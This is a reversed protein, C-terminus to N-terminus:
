DALVPAHWSRWRLEPTLVLAQNTDPDIAILHIWSNSVLQAVEPSDAIVAAIDDPRAYLFVSLRLPEHQRQPLQGRQPEAAFLAQWPLGTRLDGYAGTIVGVDGIVNHTSKDGAGYCDTEVSSFYYQSNIWQAVVVPANLITHLVQRSPDQEPQYSHLFVRGQLDIGETLWRPGAVFAANGALGWEPTAEAWDHARAAVHKVAGVATRVRAGPLHECREQATKAAALLADRQLLGLLDPEIQVTACELTVEDTTTNHLGAIAQTSEPIVIGREALVSRVEVDNLADALLRANLLGGNGGCAGCDYGAAFANNTVTSAHGIIALIPAFGSTLGIARLASEAVAVRQGLAMGVPLAAAQDFENTDAQLQVVPIHAPNAQPNFLETLTGLQRPMVTAAMGVLGTVLGGGEAVAFGTMPAKAASSCARFTFTAAPLGSTARVECAPNLLVPFQDFRQGTAAQYSVAAGFFGAFGFTQYAGTAELNRRLRESRVDICFVLQALPAASAEDPGNASQQVLKDVLEDQFGVELARQWLQLEAELQPPSGAAAALRTLDTLTLAVSTDLAARFALLELLADTDGARVRWSGHGAWGPAFTLLRQLYRMPEIGAPLAALLAALAAEPEHGLQSALVDSTPLGSRRGWHQQSCAAHWRRYPGVNEADDALTQAAGWVYATWLGTHAALIDLPTCRDALGDQSQDSALETLLVSTSQPIQGNEASTSMRGLLQQAKVLDQESIRGIDRLHRYEAESLYSRASWTQALQAATHFDFAELNALPNAAVFQRLPFAPATLNAAIATLVQADARDATPTQALRRLYPENKRAAVGPLKRTAPPLSSALFALAMRGDPRRRMQRDAVFTLLALVVLLGIWGVAVLNPWVVAPPLAEAFAREWLSVLLLYGALAAVALMVAVIAQRMQGERLALASYVAVATAAAAIAYPILAVLGFGAVSHAILGLGAFLVVAPLGVAANASRLKLLGPTHIGVPQSRRRTVEGGARLFLWAKYFGHAMLHLLALAPLGLGLQLTMYGMQATTSSALRGKVDVRAQQALTGVVASVAGIVILAALALPAARFIPWTLAVLVGAGNVIGAHLYASVPSPAEATQPLWGWAPILASRVVCGVVLLLAVLTIEATSVQSVADALESRDLSPLLVIAAVVGLWVLADGVLLRRRVSAAAREARLTGRHALLATMLMGSLTWGLAMVPVSSGAVLLTLSVFSATLLGGFRALRAQGRLNRASYRAILFGLVGIFVLLAASPTDLFLGLSVTSGLVTLTAITATIPAQLNVLLGYIGVGTLLLAVAASIRIQNM